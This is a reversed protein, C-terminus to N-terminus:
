VQVRERHKGRVRFHVAVAVIEEQYAEGIVVSVVGLAKGIGRRKAVEGSTSPDAKTGKAPM